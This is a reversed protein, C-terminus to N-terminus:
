ENEKREFNRLRPKMKVTVFLWFVFGVLTAGPQFRGNIIWVLVAALILSVWAAIFHVRVAQRYARESILAKLEEDNM